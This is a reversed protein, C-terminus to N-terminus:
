VCICMSDDAGRVWILLQTIVTRGLMCAVHLAAWSEPPSHLRNIDDTTAHALINLCNAVNNTKVADM